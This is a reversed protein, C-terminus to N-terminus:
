KLNILNGQLELVQSQNLKINAHALFDHAEKLSFPNLELTRTVRNYLGGKNNIFNEIIWSASSGCVIVKLRNNQTWYRNWYYDFAELFQSKRTAMWPAEDFLLIIKKNPPVTTMAKTLVDFAHTWKKQPAIALGEYFTESIQTVFAELQDKMTAKQIGSCYFFISNVSNQEQFFRTLLFTKGVRRRGYVALLEPKNSQYIAQLMKKEKNRGIILSSQKKLKM